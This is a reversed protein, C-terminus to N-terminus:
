RPAGALRAEVAGKAAAADRAGRLERAV